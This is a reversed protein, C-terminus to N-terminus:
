VESEWQARATELYPAEPRDLVRAMSAALDLCVLGLEAPHANPALEVIRRRLEIRESVQEPTGRFESPEFTM